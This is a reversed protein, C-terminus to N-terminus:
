STFRKTLLSVCQGNFGFCNTLAHDIKKSLAKQTVINYSHKTKAKEFNLVPPVSQNKLAMTSIVTDLAGSAFGTFGTIGKSASVALNKNSTITQEIALLEREDEAALGIGAAQLYDLNEPKLGAETLAAKMAIAEGGRSSSGFGIIEAYIKAHRRQAHEMEELVIFASGEGVVFGAAKEDLPRYVKGPVQGNFDALVNLVQYQSIGVPNVKSEAGGALMADAAGRQIIRFAEGIAQMGSSAGTTVTNNPGQLDFLISVHCAPMNPLYKLLWLPFLAGLGEEGFKKLTMRGDELSNQISYALENVEHNLVGSGVIVGFREPDTLPLALSANQFALQAAAVAMQIDRAMVKLSKRQTVFKEAAFEPFCAGIPKWGNEAIGRAPIGNGSPQIYDIGSKGERVAQWLADAGEGLASIAGLGTIVVRKNM